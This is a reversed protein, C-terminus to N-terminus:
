FLPNGNGDVILVNTMYDFFPQLHDLSAALQAPFGASKLEQETFLKKFFYQKYRLLDIREHAKDFGKPSTKVQEGQMNGFTQCLLPNQLIHSLEDSAEVDKRIRLLDVPNPGWFGAGLFCNGPELHLYYGGRLYPKKRGTQASFYSKYPTKDKSFRVDRYIRYVKLPELEERASMAAYIRKFLLDAEKKAQEFDVSNSQLWVRNNNRELDKLFTFLKAM